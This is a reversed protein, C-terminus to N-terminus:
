PYLLDSSNGWNLFCQSHLFPLCRLFPLFAWDRSNRARDGLWACVPFVSGSPPSTASSLHSSRCFFLFFWFPQRLLGFTTSSLWPCQPHRFLSSFACKLTSCIFPSSFFSETGVLYWPAATPVPPLSPPLSPAESLPRYHGLAGAQTEPPARPIGMGGGVYLGFGGEVFSVAQGRGHGDAEQGSQPIVHHRRQRGTAQAAAAAKRGEEAPRDRAGPGPESSGAAAGAGRHLHCDTGERNQGTWDAAAAGRVPFVRCQGASHPHPGRPARSPSGREPQPTGSRGPGPAGRRRAVSGRAQELESTQEGAWGRAPERAAEM